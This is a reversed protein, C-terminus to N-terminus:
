KYSTSDASDAVHLVRSAEASSQYYELTETRTDAYERQLSKVEAEYARKFEPAKLQEGLYSKFSTM